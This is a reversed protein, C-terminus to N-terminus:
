WTNELLHLGHVRWFTNISGKIFALLLRFLSHSSRPSSPPSLVSVNQDSFRAQIASNNPYTARLAMIDKLSVKPSKVSNLQKSAM